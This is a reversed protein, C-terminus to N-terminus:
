CDCEMVARFTPKRDMKGSGVVVVVVEYVYVWEGRVGAWQCGVAIASRLEVAMERGPIRFWMDMVRCVWQKAACRTGFEAM